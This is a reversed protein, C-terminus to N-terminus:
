FWFVKVGLYELFHVATSGSFFIGNAIQSESSNKGFDIFLSFLFINYIEVLMKAIDVCLVVCLVVHLTNEM